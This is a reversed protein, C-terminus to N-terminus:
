ARAEAEAASLGAVLTVVHHDLAAATAEADGRRAATVIEWHRDAAEMPTRRRAPDGFAFRHLLSFCRALIPQLAPMDAAEFLTLHFARDAESLGYWDDARALHQMTEIQRALDALVDAPLGPVARRAGAPELRRRIAVLERAEVADTRSVFTGKHGERRVLGEAALRFLAERVSAQSCGFREALALEVLKAGQPLEGLVIDRRLASVIAGPKVAIVTPTPASPSPPTPEGAFVSRKRM